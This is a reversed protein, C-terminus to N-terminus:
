RAVLSCDHCLDSAAHFCRQIRDEAMAHYTFMDATKLAQQLRLQGEHPGQQYSAGPLNQWAHCWFASQCCRRWVSARHMSSGHVGWLHPFRGWTRPCDTACHWLRRTERCNMANVCWKPLGAIHVMCLLADGCSATYHWAMGHRM